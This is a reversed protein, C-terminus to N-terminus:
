VVLPLFGCRAEWGPRERWGAKSHWGQVEGLKRWRRAPLTVVVRCCAM